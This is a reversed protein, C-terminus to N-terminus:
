GKQKFPTTHMNCNTGKIHPNELLDRIASVVAARKTATDEPELIQKTNLASLSVETINKCQSYPLDEQCM